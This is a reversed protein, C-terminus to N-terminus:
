PGTLGRNVEIRDLKMDENLYFALSWVVHVMTLSSEVFRAPLVNGQLEYLTVGMNQMQQIIAEKSSGIPLIQNLAEQATHATKYNKFEFKMDKKDRQQYDVIAIKEKVCGLKASHLLTSNITISNYCSLFVFIYVKNKQFPFNM